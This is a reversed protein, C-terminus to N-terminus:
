GKKAAPVAPSVTSTFLGNLWTFVKSGGGIVLLYVVITIGMGIGVVPIAAGLVLYALLALLAGESWRGDIMILLGIVLGLALITGSGKGAKM